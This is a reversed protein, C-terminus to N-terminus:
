PNRSHKEIAVASGRINHRSNQEPVINGSNAAISLMAQFVKKIGKITFELINFNEHKQLYIFLVKASM